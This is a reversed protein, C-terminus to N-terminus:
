KVTQKLCNEVAEIFPRRDVPVMFFVSAGAQKSEEEINKVNEPCSAALAIVPKGYEVQLYSVVEFPRWRPTNRFLPTDTFRLNNLMVIFLDIPSCKAHSLLQGVTVHKAISLDFKSTLEKEINVALMSRIEPEDMSISIHVKRREVTSKRVLEDIM